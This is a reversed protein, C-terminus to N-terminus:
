TAGEFHQLLPPDPEVFMTHYNRMAPQPGSFWLHQMLAQHAYFHVTTHGGELDLSVRDPEQYSLAMVARERDNM